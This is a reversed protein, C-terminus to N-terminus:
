YQVMIVQLTAPCTYNRYVKNTGPWAEFYTCSALLTWVSWIDESQTNESVHGCPTLKLKMYLIDM